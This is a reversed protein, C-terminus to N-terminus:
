EVTQAMMMKMMMMKKRQNVKTMVLRRVKDVSVKGIMLAMMMMMMKIRGLCVKNRRQRMRQSM